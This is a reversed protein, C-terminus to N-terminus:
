SPRGLLGGLYILTYTIASTVFEETYVVAIFAQHKRTNSSGSGVKIQASLSNM